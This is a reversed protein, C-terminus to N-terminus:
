SAHATVCVRMKLWDDARDGWVYLPVDVGSHGVTSWGLGARM